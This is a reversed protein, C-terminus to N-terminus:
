LATTNRGHPTTDPDAPRHLFIEWFQVTSYCRVAIINTTIVRM